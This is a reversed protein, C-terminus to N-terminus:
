PMSTSHGGDGLRGGGSAAEFVEVGEGGGEDDDQKDGVEDRLLDAEESGEADTVPGEAGEGDAAGDEEKGDGIDESVDEGLDVAEGGRASGDPKAEEARREEVEDSGDDDCEGGGRSPAVLLGEGSDEAEDGADEGGAEDGEPGALEGVGVGHGAELEDGVTALEPGAGDAGGDYALGDIGDEDDNEGEASDIGDAGQEVDDDGAVGELYAVLDEGGGEGVEDDVPELTGFLGVGEVTMLAEIREGKVVLVLEVGSDAGRYGSVPRALGALNGLNCIGCGEFGRLM